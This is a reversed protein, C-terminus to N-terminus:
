LLVAGMRSNIQKREINLHAGRYHIFYALINTIILPLRSIIAELIYILIHKLLSTGTMVEAQSRQFM